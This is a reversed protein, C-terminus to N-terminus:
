PHNQAGPERQEHPKGPEQVAQTETCRGWDPRQAAERRDGAPLLGPELVQDRWFKVTPEPCKILLSRSVREAVEERGCTDKMGGSPPVRSDRPKRTPPDRIQVNLLVRHHRNHRAPQAGPLGDYRDGLNQTLPM